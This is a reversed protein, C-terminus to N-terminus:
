IIVIKFWQMAFFGQFDFDDFIFHYRIGVM